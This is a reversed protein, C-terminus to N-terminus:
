IQVFVGLLGDHIRLNVQLPRSALAVDNPKFGLECTSILQLNSNTQTYAM